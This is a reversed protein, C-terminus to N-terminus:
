CNRQQIFLLLVIAVIVPGSIKREGLEWAQVARLTVRLKDAMAQQTFGLDRRAEKFEAPTM